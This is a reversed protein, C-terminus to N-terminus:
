QGLLEHASGLPHAQETGVIRQHVGASVRDLEGPVLEFLGLGRLRRRRRQYVTANLPAAFTAGIVSLLSVAFSGGGAGGPAVPVVFTRPTSDGDPWTLTGFTATYDTGAIASGNATGYSATVIGSASGLRNVTITVAGARPSVSYNASSLEIAGPSATSSTTSAACTFIVLLACCLGLWHAKRHSM